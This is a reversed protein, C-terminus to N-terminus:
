EEVFEDKKKWLFIGTGVVAIGAIAALIYVAWRHNSSDAVGEVPIDDAYNLIVIDTNKEIRQGDAMDYNTATTHDEDTYTASPSNYYTGSNDQAIKLTYNFPITLTRVDNGSGAIDDLTAVLVDGSKTATVGNGLDLTDPATTGTPPVLTITPSFVNSTSSYPGDVTERITVSRTNAISTIHITKDQYDYNKAKPTTQDLTVNSNDTWTYTYDNDTSKIETKVLYGTPVNEYYFVDDDVSSAASTGGSSSYLSRTGGPAVVIVDSLASDSASVASGTSDVITSVVNFQGSTNESGVDLTYSHRSISPQPFALVLDDDSNYIGSINTNSRLIDTASTKGSAPYVDQLTVILKQGQRGEAVYHDTYDYGSVSLTNNTFDTTLGSISTRSNAVPSVDGNTMTINETEYTITTNSGVVFDTTNIYDKLVTSGNMDITTPDLDDNHMTVAQLFAAVLTDQNSAMRYYKNTSEATSKHRVTDGDTAAIYNGSFTGDLWAPAIYDEADPYNSSTVSMYDFITDNATETYDDNNPRWERRLCYYTSGNQYTEMWGGLYKWAAATSSSTTTAHTYTLPNGDSEGFVGISFLSAGYQKIPLAAEVVDNAEAYQDSYHYDGPQGDTFFIVIKNRDVSTGKNSGSRITYTTTSRNTLIKYAMDLGDEPQTGGNATLANIASTIKGNVTGVTGNTSDVLAKGYYESVNGDATAKQWGNYTSPLSEDTKTLVETNSYGSSSFGVISIRNDVSGYYDTENAVAEAFENLAAKLAAIRTTTGSFTYLGSYTPRASDAAQASRAYGNDDCFEWTTQGNNTNSPVEYEVGDIDRYCLKTYSLHRGYMPYNIYMGTRPRALLLNITSYTYENDNPYMSQVTTNATSWLAGSTMVDGNLVNKYWPSNGNSSYTTVERDFKYTNGTLKSPFQFRMVYTGIKGQITTRIPIYYTTGNVDERFYFANDIDTTADTEGMFWGIDTGLHEVIDGTFWYNAPYYRYLYDKVGYVRYYNDGDKYYYQGNAITELYKNNQVTATGTPMDATDMSGSQDVVVVFDTPIKETIEVEDATTYAEMTLDYNGNSNPTLYKSLVMGSEPDTTATPTLNALSDDAKTAFNLGLVMTSIAFVLALFAAVFRRNFDSTRSVVLAAGNDAGYRTMNKQRRANQKELALRRKENKDKREFKRTKENKNKM